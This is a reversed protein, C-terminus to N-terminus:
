VERSGSREAYVPSVGRHAADSRRAVRAQSLPAHAPTRLAPYHRVWFGPLDQTVQLARQNPALLHLVFHVRGDGIAPGRPPPWFFDQLRSAVWPPRDTEYHVAARRGRALVVHTPALKHVLTRHEGLQADLLALLDARRLEDFSIAGDAARAIVGALADDTPAVIGANPAISAVLSVRTRWQALADADVFRDIGAAIAQRALVEPAAAGARRAGEVDRHEDITLGDYSMQTVREVREKQANWVLEDREVIRDLYLDLLWSPEIASARRIQVRAAQGRAGTEAVDVAVVFEADIM